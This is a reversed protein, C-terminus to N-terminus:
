KCAPLAYPKFFSTLGEEAGGMLFVQADVTNPITYTATGYELCGGEEGHNYKFCETRSYTRPAVFDRTGWAQCVYETRTIHAESDVVDVTSWETCVRQPSISKVATDTLCANDLTIGGMDYGGNFGYAKAFIESWSSSQNLSAFANASALLAVVVFLKRM